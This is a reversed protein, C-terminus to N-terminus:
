KRFVALISQGAPPEMVREIRSLWPVFLGDFLAIQQAGNETHRLVHGNFWWGFFGVFNVYRLVDVRFGAAAARAALARKSYRRFHGLKWDVPGYLADFAPVLVVARGGDPLVDCMLRLAAADDRVHELVNLCAISDPHHSRLGVLAPDEADLQETIVHPYERFRERRIRVCDPESDIGLALDRDLLHATFNGLGCGIELVRRGLHPVALSHLWNFYNVGRRMRQQDAVIYAPDPDPPQHLRPEAPM